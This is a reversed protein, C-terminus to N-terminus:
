STSEQTGQRGQKYENYIGIFALIHNLSYEHDYTTSIDYVEAYKNTPLSDCARCAEFAAVAQKTRFLRQSMSMLAVGKRYM